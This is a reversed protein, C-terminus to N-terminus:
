PSSEPRSIAERLGRDDQWQGHQFRALAPGLHQGLTAINEELVPMAPDPVNAIWGRLRFGDAQIARASLLGHNICGLKLGIVLIVEAELARVLDATMTSSGLPVMWGGAGEVLRWDARIAQTGSALATVDIEVLAQAAAIHPAIAPALVVPNVTEYPLKVSASDILTLADDNRFRGQADPEAGSAVPKFCAVSHNQGMRRALAATITTKGCGTDTGTIFWTQSM